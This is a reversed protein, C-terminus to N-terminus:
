PSSRYGRRLRAVGRRNSGGEDRGRCSADWAAMACTVVKELEAQKMGDRASVSLGKLISVYFSSLANIDALSGVDGDAVGREIRERIAREALQRQATLHESIHSNEPACNIAGLMILCGTPEGKRAIRGAARRLLGEIAEKATSAAELVARNSKAEADVYLEVVESYLAEKSGFAAYLSPSNIGMAATLDALSTAEYGREWFLRTARVLAVNRDFSRPRGRDAM